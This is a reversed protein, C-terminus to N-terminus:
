TYTEEGLELKFLSNPGLEVKSQDPFLMVASSKAATKIQDGNRLDLPVRTVVRWAESKSRSTRVSGTIKVITVAKSPAGHAPSIALALGLAALWRGNRM